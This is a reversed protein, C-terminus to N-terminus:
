EDQSDILWDAVGQLSQSAPSHPEYQLAPREFALAQPVAADRPVVMPVLLEPYQRQVTKRVQHGLKSGHHMQNLLINCSVAKQRATTLEEVLSLMRPITALSAADALAVLVVRQVARMVQRLYVTPGPPTDILVFDYSGPEFSDLSDRLWNPHQRLYATFEELESERVQGFPVFQVGFPSEFVSEVSLGERALGAIERPDLGLHIHQMNQPDMDVVLVRKKRAVLGAAVNATLTSKGVGGKGSIFAIVQM